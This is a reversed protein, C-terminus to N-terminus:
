NSDNELICIRSGDRVSSFIILYRFTFINGSPPKGDFTLSTDRELKLSIAERLSAKSALV